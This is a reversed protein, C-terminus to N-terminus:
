FSDTSVGYLTAMAAVQAVREPSKHPLRDLRQRLQLLSDYPIQKRGM